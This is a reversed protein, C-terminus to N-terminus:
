WLIRGCMWLLGPVLVIFSKQVMVQSSVALKVLNCCFKSASQPLQCNSIRFNARLCKAEFKTNLWRYGAAFFTKYYQNWPPRVPGCDKPNVNLTGEDVHLLLPSM